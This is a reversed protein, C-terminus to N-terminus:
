PLTVAVAACSARVGILDTAASDAVAGGAGPVSRPRSPRPWRPLGPHCPDLFRARGHIRTVGNRLLQRSQYEVNAKVVGDMREMLSALQLDRPVEFRLHRGLRRRLESLHRATERLTKSPITGRHVCAGGVDVEQEVICVSRGAKASQISAKQGAPGSGVVVVDFHLEEASGTM